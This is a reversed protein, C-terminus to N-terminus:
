NEKWAAVLWVTPGVVKEGDREFLLEEQVYIGRGVQRGANTAACHVWFAHMGEAAALDGFPPAVVSYPVPEFSDELM